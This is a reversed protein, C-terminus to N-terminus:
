KHKAIKKISINLDNVATNKKVQEMKTSKKETNFKHYVPANFNLAIGISVWIVIIGWIWVTNKKKRKEFSNGIITELDEKDM